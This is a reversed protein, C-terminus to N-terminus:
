FSIFYILWQGKSIVTKSNFIVAQKDLSISLGRSSGGTVACKNLSRAISAAHSTLGGLMTLVGDAANLGAMDCSNTENVILICTQGSSHVAVAEENSFVAIGSVAGHSSPLAKAIVDKESVPVVKTSFVFQMAEPSLKILGERETMLKEDVM